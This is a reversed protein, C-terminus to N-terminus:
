DIKIAIKRMAEELLKKTVPELYKPSKFNEKEINALDTRYKNRTM